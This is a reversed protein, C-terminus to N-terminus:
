ADEVARGLWERAATASQFMQLDTDIDPKTLFIWMSIKTMQGKPAVIACRGQGFRDKHSIVWRSVQNLENLSFNEVSSDRHDILLDMGPAWHSAGILNTLMEILGKATLHEHTTLTVLKEKPAFDTTYQM